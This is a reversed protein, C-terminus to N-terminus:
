RVVEFSEFEGTPEKVDVKVSEVRAEPSGQHCWRVFREVNEEPGEALAEVDGNALNRVWGALQLRRAEGQAYARFSVGQVLGHIRLHARRLSM